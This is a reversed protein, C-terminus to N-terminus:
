PPSQSHLGDHGAWDPCGAEGMDQPWCGQLSPSLCSMLHAGFRCVLQDETPALTCWIQTEDVAGIM